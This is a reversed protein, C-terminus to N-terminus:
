LARFLVLADDTLGDSGIYYRSRRGMPSFGVQEYLAIAPGNGAAVELFAHTANRARSEALFQLTLRAGLGQRRAAPLVALTLLEAEGAIARGMLFGHPETLVFVYPSDLLAAIEGANWPRPLTFCAAHIAALDVVDPM